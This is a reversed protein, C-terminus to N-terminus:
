VHARGIKQDGDVSAEIPYSELVAGMYMTAMAVSPQDQIVPHAGGPLHDVFLYLFVAFIVAVFAGYVVKTRASMTKKRAGGPEPTAIATPPSPSENRAGCATCFTSGKKLPKGCATCFAEKM